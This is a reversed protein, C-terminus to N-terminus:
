EARFIATNAGVGLALTILAALTFGPSARLGRLAHAADIWLNSLFRTVTAEQGPSLSDSWEIVLENVM